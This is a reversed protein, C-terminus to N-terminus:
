KHYKTGAAIQYARYLQELLMVRAMHHPFTMPSLSLKLDARQKLREDLGVSGGILFTLRGGGETGFAAIKHSLEESSLEDGEICLAILTGNKPLKDEILAAEAALAQSLEAPSPADPLRSEPLEILELKCHRALRKEYEAAADIYFKEKLRGVCLITVRQM